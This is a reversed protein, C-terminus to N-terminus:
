GLILGHNVPSQDPVHVPGIDFNISEIGPLFNSKLDKQEPSLFINKIRPHIELMVSLVLYILGENLNLLHVIFPLLWM